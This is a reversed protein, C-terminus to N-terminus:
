GQFLIHREESVQDHQSGRKMFVGTLQAIRKLVEERERFHNLSRM